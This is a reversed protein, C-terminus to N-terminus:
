NNYEKLKKNYEIQLEEMEKSYKDTHVIGRECESNYNALLNYRDEWFFEKKKKRFWMFKVLFPPFGARKRM